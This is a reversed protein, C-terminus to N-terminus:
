VERACRRRLWDRCDHTERAAALNNFPRIRVRVGHARVPSTPQSIEVGFRSDNRPPRRLWHDVGHIVFCLSFDCSRFSNSFLIARHDHSTVRRRDSRLVM